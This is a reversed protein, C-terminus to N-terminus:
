TFITGNGPFAIIQYAFFNAFNFLTMIQLSRFCYKLHQITPSSGSAKEARPMELFIGEEEHKPWVSWFAVSNQEQWTYFQLIRGRLSYVSNSSSKERWTVADWLWGVVRMEVKVSQTNVGGDLRALLSVVTGLVFHLLCSLIWHLM